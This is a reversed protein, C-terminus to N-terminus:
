KLTRKGEKSVFGYVNGGYDVAVLTNGSIAVTTFIPAGLTQKWLLHGKEKDLAYLVGDAGGVFVTNGTVVPGAEISPSPNRVYPSTYIMGPETRYNWKESLTEKDLAVIGNDGTGFVIEKDTVVPSSAVNVNYPLKKQMLIRGTASEMVFLSQDSTLYFINGHMVASSSRHRIGEKSASWLQKGTKADHGYLAGWHASCILVGRNYSMTATSSEHQRWATNRWLEKGSKLDVACLGAGAGAYVIGDVAVLGEILMPLVPNTGLKNEWALKGSAANVAYLYGEVDQAMILGDHAVITNKVSSRTKYKWRIDGTKADMSVIAAHGKDNEEISAVFIADRYIVPSTMYINSGVNRVWALELPANLTDAVVGTHQPNSLLNTWDKNLAIAPTTTRYIFSRERRAVEGNNFAAEVAVTILEGEADKPLPIEGWWNFDTQQALLKGSWVTKEDVKCDYTVRGVPSTASYANVSLAVKGSPLVPAQLNDISAIEVSKDIYSYRLESTFDGKSDIKMVRFASASHDIGGRIPTSTCISYAQKHKHIHNIHWHGYIWAKLNHADLDIVEKDNIGFLFSDDTTLIDHNFIIIPTGAAIQALDNKLWHYVDEKRYSPRHDGGPMPTVIYHVNGADFSYWVPGYVSEYLEEGYAGKVLDHNGICYFVQTNMNATNMLHIHNKLGNEYCIDGTHIIFAAGENSAYDRLNQIWDSHEANTVSGHIETDSIHIFQHSGDKKIAGSYPQVAFDYSATAPEIRRYYANNTKYGSPTTIFIFKEKAHGPLSFSGDAATKVVNLGDSVLVGPLTKEGKDYVGNRNKDVYVHGTYAAQMWAATCSLLALTLITKKM